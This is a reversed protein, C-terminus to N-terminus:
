NTIKKKPDVAVNIRWELESIQKNFAEVAIGSSPPDFMMKVKMFMYTKVLSVHKLDGLFDEWTEDEGEITYGIVGIGLQNLISFVSNINIIIDNDFTLDTPVIGLMTKISRLISEEM